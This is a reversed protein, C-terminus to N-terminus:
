FFFPSISIEGRKKVIESYATWAGYFMRAKRIWFKEKEM